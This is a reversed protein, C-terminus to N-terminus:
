KKKFHKKSFSYIQLTLWVLSLISVFFQLLPTIKIVNMMSMWSVVTATVGIPTLEPSNDFQQM